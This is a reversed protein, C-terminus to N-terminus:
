RRQQRLSEWSLESSRSFWVMTILIWIGEAVIWAVRSLLALSLAAGVPMINALLLTLASERIGIGAPVFVVVFGACWALAFISSAELWTLSELQPYIALAMQRFPLGFLFWFSVSGILTWPLWGVNRQRPDVESYATLPSKSILKLSSFLRWFWPMQILLIVGASVLTGLGIAWSLSKSLSLGQLLGLLGIFAAGLFMATTERFVSVVSQASGVGLLQYVAVRGPFAWIGGPLYKFIQTFFYVGTAKPYSFPSGLHRLSAWPIIGVIALVFLLLFQATAFKGWLIGELSTQLNPWEKHITYGLPALAALILLLRFGAQIVRRGSM